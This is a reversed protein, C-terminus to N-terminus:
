QIKNVQLLLPLSALSDFRHERGDVLAVPESPIVNIRTMAAIESSV